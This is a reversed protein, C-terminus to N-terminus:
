SVVMFSQLLNSLMFNHTNLILSSASAHLEISLIGCLALRQSGHVLHQNEGAALLLPQDM